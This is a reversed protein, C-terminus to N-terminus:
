DGCVKSARTNKWDELLSNKRKEILAAEERKAKINMELIAEFPVATFRAPSELTSEVVGKKELSKLIRYVLAKPMRTQKSIEGGKHVGHKALFIYVEAERNTLGFENLVKKITEESM